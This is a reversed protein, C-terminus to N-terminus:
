GARVVLRRRAEFGAPFPLVTPAGVRGCPGHRLHATAEDDFVSLVSRVFRTVGDPHRCAGRGDIHKCLELLPQTWGHLLHPRLALTEVAEVLGALGHVCPGCQGAGQREMYRVVRASEMLPCVTRPLLLVVGAGLSLGQQRVSHEDLHVTRLASMSAWTGGYGGLLAGQYADLAGYSLPLVDCLVAGLPAEIV